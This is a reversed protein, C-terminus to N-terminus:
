NHKGNKKKRWVFKLKTNKFEKEKWFHKDLPKGWIQTEIGQMAMFINKRMKIARVGAFLFIFGLFGWFGYKGFWEILFALVLGFGLMYVIKPVKATYKKLNQKLKKLQKIM